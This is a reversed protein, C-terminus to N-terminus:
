QSRCQSIHKFDYGMAAWTHRCIWRHKCMHLQFLLTRHGHKGQSHLICKPCEVKIRENWLTEQSGSCKNGLSALPDSRVTLFFLPDSVPSCSSTPIPLLCPQTAQHYQCLRAREGTWHSFQRIKRAPKSYFKFSIIQTLLWCLVQCGHVDIVM